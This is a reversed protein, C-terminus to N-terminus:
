IKAAHVVCAMAIVLRDHEFGGPALPEDEGIVVDEREQGVWAEGVVAHVAEGIARRRARDLRHTAASRPDDARLAAVVVPQARHEVGAQALGDPRPGFGREGGGRVLQEVVHEGALAEVDDRLVGEGKRADRQGVEQADIASVAAPEHAPRDVDDGEEVVGLDGRLAGHRHGRACGLHDGVGV